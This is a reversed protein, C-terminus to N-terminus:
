NTKVGPNAVANKAEGPLVDDMRRLAGGGRETREYYPHPYPNGGKWTGCQAEATGCLFFRMVHSWTRERREMKLVPWEYIESEDVHSMAAVFSIKDAANINLKASSAEAIEREARVLEPNADEPPIEIGNQEALIPRLYQFQAPTIERVEEGDVTFRICKLRLPDDKYVIPVFASTRDEVGKGERIRMALALFLVARYFLNTGGEGDEAMDMRFYAELLPMRLMAVPLSQQMFGIAPSASLFAAYDKVKIPHFTLGDVVIPQYVDIAAKIKDPVRSM